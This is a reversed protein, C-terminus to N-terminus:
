WSGCFINQVSSAVIGGEEETSMRDEDVDGHDHDFM